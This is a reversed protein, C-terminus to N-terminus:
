FIELWTGAHPVVLGFLGADKEFHIVGCRWISSNNSQRDLAVRPRLEERYARKLLSESRIKIRRINDLSLRDDGLWAHIDEPCLFNIKRIEKGLRQLTQNDAPPRSLPKPFAYRVIGDENRQYLFLSSLIFGPTDSLLTEMAADAKGLVCLANVLASTLADSALTVRSNEMGIGDTAGFHVPGTFTLRYLYTKM